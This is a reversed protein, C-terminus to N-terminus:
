VSMNRLYVRKPITNDLFWIEYYRIIGNGITGDYKNVACIWYDGFLVLRFGLELRTGWAQSGMQGGTFGRFILSIPDWRPIRRWCTWCHEPMEKQKQKLNYNTRNEALTLFWWELISLLFLAWLIGLVGVHPPRALMKVEEGTWCCKSSIIYLAIDRYILRSVSFVFFISFCLKLGECISSAMTISLIDKAKEGKFAVRWGM